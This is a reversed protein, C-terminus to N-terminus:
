NIGMAFDSIKNKIKKNKQIYNLASKRGISILPNQIKFISDLKDTIQYLRYANYFNENHFEKCFFSDGLEIGLSLYKKSLYFLNKVDSMGLNWGQGAIPHFSHASDGVYLTRREYFKTNIHASLPFLQMSNISTIHGISFKTSEDLISKLKIEDMDILNDLYEGNNTWVISSAFKKGQKKMPLIALPGNKYFLEFATGFHNKSHTCIIVLAKKKYEKNFFPTKNIKKIFSKKGDAAINLEAFIKLNKSKTIILEKQNEIKIINTNNFIKVKKNKELKKYFIDLVHKNKVIYGLNSFRRKNDFDLSNSIKRDVIKIQKIPEALTKIEKWIGINELFNKTGESIAVTRQDTDNKNLNYPPNKELITIKFGLKSLSYATAVGILGGGIININPYIEKM